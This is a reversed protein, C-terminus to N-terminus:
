HPLTRRAQAAGLATGPRSASAPSGLAGARANFGVATGGGLAESPPCTNGRASASAESAESM